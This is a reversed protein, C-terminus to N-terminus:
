LYIPDKYIYYSIRRFVQTEPKHHHLIDRRTDEEAVLNAEEVEEKAGVKVKAEREVRRKRVKRLM